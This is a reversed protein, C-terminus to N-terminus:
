VNFRFLIVDGENVRYDKGEQRFCGKEKCKPVTGYKFYDDFTVVDARIFGREIDTHIAGAAKNAPTGAPIIWSQASPESATLFRILKMTRVLEATVREVAKREIGYEREFEIREDEPLEQLEKETRCNIWLFTGKQAPFKEELRQVWSEGGATEEDDLNVVTIRPKITLFQYGRLIKENDPDLDLVSLPEDSELTSRCKQLLEPEGPKCFDPNKSKMKDIRELKNEITTLDVLMLETDLASKEAVPDITGREAPVTPNSFQRVVQILANCNKAEELIGTSGSEASNKITTLPPLDILDFSSHIQKKANVAKQLFELRNDPITIIGHRTQEAHERDTVNRGTLLSFLTTKGTNKLGILGIQM